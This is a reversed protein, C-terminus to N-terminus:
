SHKAAKFEKKYKRFESKNPSKGLKETLEKRLKKVRKHNM